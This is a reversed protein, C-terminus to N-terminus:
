YKSTCRPASWKRTFVSLPMPTSLSPMRATPYRTGAQLGGPAMTVIPTSVIVRGTYLQEISDKAQKDGDTRVLLNPEVLVLQKRIKRWKVYHTPGMVGAQPDGGSVTCAIMILQTEHDGSLVALLRGTKKQRYLDYLSEADDVTSVVKEFGEIVKDFTPFDKKDAETAAPATPPSAASPLATAVVAVLSSAVIAKRMSATNLM